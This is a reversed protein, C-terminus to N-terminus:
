AQEESYGSPCASMPDVPLQKADAPIPRSYDPFAKENLPYWVPFPVGFYRQRSISWDLQLNQTGIRLVATCSSPTGTFRRGKKLLEEKKDTLRIFWQRSSMFELPKDGKEFFKV